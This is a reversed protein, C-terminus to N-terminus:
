GRQGLGLLRGGTVATCAVIAAVALSELFRGTLAGSSDGTKFLDFLFGGALGGVVGAIYDFTPGYGGAALLKGAGGGILFGIVVWGLAAVLPLGMEAFTVM